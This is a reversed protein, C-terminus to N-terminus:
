EAMAACSAESDSLTRFSDGPVEYRTQGYQKGIRHPFPRVLRKIIHVGIAWGCIRPDM